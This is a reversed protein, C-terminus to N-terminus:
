ASSRRSHTQREHVIALWDPIPMPRALLFGQLAHCDHVFLFRSQEETEVGEAVVRLNLQDAMALILQVIAISDADDPVDQILSKDIKLEYLPLRKLYALNSYGTGFDDISFRIGLRALAQMRQAVAQIDQILVGETVEFILRNGPVGKRELMDRVYEVFQAEMLRKPSINVSLPYIEGLAQLSLLTDCAVDLTWTSLLNILGSEEAVPIFLAPSILGHSPHRWRALLEGGTVRGDRGFQPQIHLSLQPTNIAQLLDQELWLRQEVEAQLEQEYFTSQNGGQEKARQTALEAERMIADTSPSDANILTLGVSTTVFAPTDDQISLASGCIALRLKEAVHMATRAADHQETGLGSLLVVFEDSSSHAVLDHERTLRVLREGIGRLVQDGFRYGHTDNIRKFGDLNVQLLAGYSKDGAVRQMLQALRELAMRRNPLNTLSDYYTLRQATQEAQIRDTIDTAVVCIANVEGKAGLLPAKITFLTRPKQDHPRLIVQETVSRAQTDFVARDGQEISALSAPDHIFDADRKGIVAGPGAGLFAELTHNAFLYRRSRDKISVVADISDLIINLQQESTRLRQRQHRVQARLWLTILLALALLGTLGAIIWLAHQGLTSRPQPSRWHDLTRFYFSNPEAQWVGLYRDIAALVAPNAGKPTAFFAQTPQFIISTAVLGYVKATLEGIYFDAAVADAQRLDVMQFGDELKQVPVLRTKIKLAALTTNLYDQQASGALVAVTQGDLDTISRLQRTAPAFIQSWSHLAPVHHFNYIKAREPTYYVDPLLDIKHSGLLQMCQEWNCAQTQLSWGERRAIENLLEGLIGAPQGQANIYVDPRQDYIGVRLTLAQAQAAFLALGLTLALQLVALVVRFPLRM